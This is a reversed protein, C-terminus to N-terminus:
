VSGTLKLRLFEADDSVFGPSLFRDHGTRRDGSYFETFNQTDRMGFRIDRNYSLQQNQPFLLDGDNSTRILQTTELTRLRDVIEQPQFQPSRAIMACLNALGAADFRNAFKEGQRDLWSGIGRDEREQIFPPAVFLLFGFQRVLALKSAEESGPIFLEGNEFERFRNVVHDVGRQFVEREAGKFVRDEMILDAFLDIKQSVPSGELLFREQLEFFQRGLPDLYGCGSIDFIKGVSVGDQFLWELAQGGGMSGGIVSHVKSIGFEERLLRASLQVGDALSVESRVSGLEQASTAGAGPVGSV